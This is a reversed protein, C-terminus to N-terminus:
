MRVAAHAVRGHVGALDVTTAAFEDAARDTRVSPHECYYVATSIHSTLGVFVAGSGSVMPAAILPPLSKGTFGPNAHVLCNAVRQPQNPHATVGPTPALDKAVELVIAGLGAVGSASDAGASHLHGAIARATPFEFILTPQVDADGFTNRLQASLRVAATSTLGAEM